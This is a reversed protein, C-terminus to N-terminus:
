SSLAAPEPTWARRRASSPPQIHWKDMWLLLIMLGWLHYGVNVRRELHSTVYAGIAQDNFIAARGAAPRVTDLLLSRLPGRLWEHAPIDFGVKQRHLIAPPLLGAMLEKLLVKQRGGHIKFRSPLAAAFEVLRHDLFPPRVEVAHAMSMRDVKTLVDDPLYTEADFRMMQSTWPLGAYRDFHRSLRAEPDPDDIHDFVEPALLARKEDRGFFRIADLYRGPEDRSVHRLFNRGRTGHPLGAAAVGAVFRLARPSYRDFAVVRPHPLYRDYGGFLEDGGDGSLVVTVHRRAMESVYWTPIASSDAFPEDFHEILRDLIAIADPKVVL